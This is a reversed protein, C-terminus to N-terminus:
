RIYGRVFSLAVLSWFYIFSRIGSIILLAAVSYVVLHVSIISGALAGIGVLTFILGSTLLYTRRKRNTPWIVGVIIRVLGTLAIVSCAVILAVKLSGIPHNRVFWVAVIIAGGLALYSIYSLGEYKASFANKIINLAKSIMFAILSFVVVYPALWTFLLLGTILLLTAKFFLAPLSLRAIQVFFPKPSPHVRRFILKDAPNYKNDIINEALKPALLPINHTGKNIKVLETNSGSFWKKLNQSDIFWDKTGYVITRHLKKDSNLSAPNLELVGQQVSRIMPLCQVLRKYGLGKLLKDYTGKPNTINNINALTRTLIREPKSNPEILVPSFAVIKKAQKPYTAGYQVAVLSGLSHGIIICNRAGISQLTRELWIVQEDLSYSSNRPKPSDGFGLLDIVLVRNSTVFKEYVGKWYSSSSEIGHLFVMPVGKGKDVAVHLTQQQYATILKAMKKPFNQVLMHDTKIISLRQIDMDPRFRRLSDLQGQIIFLDRKGAYFTVPATVKSLYGVFNFSRVMKDIVRSVVVPDLTTDHAGILSHFFDSENAINALRQGFKRNLVKETLRYFGTSIKTMLVSSAFRHWEMQEPRLYFPTAILILQEIEEPYTAAYALAVAGGMSYGVITIDSTVGLELLSSRLASVNEEPSYTQDHGRPSKGHGLIDVVIVRYDQAVINMISEWLTGDGFLGHILVLPRGKGIDYRVYMSLEQSKKRM